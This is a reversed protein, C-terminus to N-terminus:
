DCPSTSCITSERPLSSLRIWTEIMEWQSCFDDMSKIHEKLYTLSPHGMPLLISYVIKVRRIIELSKNELRLYLSLKLVEKADSCSAASGGERMLDVEHNIAQQKELDVERFLYLNDMAEYVPCAVKM